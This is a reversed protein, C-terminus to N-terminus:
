KKLIINSIRKKFIYKSFMKKSLICKKSKKRTQFIDAM